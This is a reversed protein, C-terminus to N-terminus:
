DGLYKKLASEKQKENLKSKPKDLKAPKNDKRSDDIVTLSSPDLTVTYNGPDDSFDQVLIDPGNYAKIGDKLFSIWVERHRSSEEERLCANLIELATYNGDSKKNVLSIFPQKAKNDLMPAYKMIDIYKQIAGPDKVAAPMYQKGLIVLGSKIANQLQTVEPDTLGPPIVACWDKPTLWVKFQASNSAPDKSPTGLGFYSGAKQNLSIVVGAYNNIQGIKEM